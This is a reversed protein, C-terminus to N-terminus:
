ADSEAKLWWKEIIWDTGNPVKIRKLEMACLKGLPPQALFSRIVVEMEANEKFEKSHPTAKEVRIKFTIYASGGRDELV